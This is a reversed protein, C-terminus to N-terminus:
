AATHFAAAYPRERVAVRLGLAGRTLDVIVQDPRAAALSRRPMRARTGLVIVDAHEVLHRGRRVAALFHASDRERHIATPARSGRWCSTRTTSACDCGKGILAEALAVMPSERLDDTTSKFTLGVVGVRRPVTDLVTSRGSIQAHNSPLIRRAAAARARSRGVCCPACTRRCARDASRSDPTLYADSINLKHDRRFIRMVEQADVGIAECLDAIENAFCVKLAHFTNCVYKVMEATRTSTQSSRRMSAPMSSRM